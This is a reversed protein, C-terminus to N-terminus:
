QWCAPLHRSAQLARRAAATTERHEAKGKELMMREERGLYPTHPEAVGNLPSKTAPDDVMDALQAGAPHFPTILAKLLRFSRQVEKALWSPRCPMRLVRAALLPFKSTHEGCVEHEFENSDTMNHALLLLLQAYSFPTFFNLYLANFVASSPPMDALETLSPEAGWTSDGRETTGALWPRM